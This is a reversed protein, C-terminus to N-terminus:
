SAYHARVGTRNLIAGDVIADSPFAQRDVLEVEYSGRSDKLLCAKASNSGIDLGLLLKGKGMAYEKLHTVDLRGYNRM